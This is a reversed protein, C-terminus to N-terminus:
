MWKSKLVQLKISQFKNSNITNRFIEGSLFNNQRMLLQSLFLIFFLKEDSELKGLRAVLIYFVINILKWYLVFSLIIEVYLQLMYILCRMDNSM